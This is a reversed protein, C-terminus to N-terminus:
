AVMAEAMAVAQGAQKRAVLPDGMMAQKTAEIRATFAKLAPAITGDM